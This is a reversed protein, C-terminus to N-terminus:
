VKLRLIRFGSASVWLELLGSGQPRLSACSFTDPAESCPSSSCAACGHKYPSLTKLKSHADVPCSLNYSWRHPVDIKQPKYHFCQHNIKNELM